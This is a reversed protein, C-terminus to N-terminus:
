THRNAWGDDNHALLSLEREWARDRSRDLGRRTLFAALACCAVIAVWITTTAVVANFEADAPKLPASVVQGRDNLWITMHDGMRITAPSVVQETRLQTGERWQARVYAPTDFDTPLGIGEVVLAEVSHRDHSQEAATRMGSDHVLAGGSMAFPLAILASIFVSLVVLAELRDSRRVLPNFGLARLYWRLRGAFATVSTVGSRDASEGNRAFM